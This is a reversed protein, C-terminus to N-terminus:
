KALRCRTLVTQKGFGRDQHNKVTASIKVESKVSDDDNYLWDTNGSNFTVFQNDTGKFFGCIMLSDGYFSEVLRTRTIEVDVCKLKEGKEGVYESKKPDHTEIKEGMKKALRYGFMGIFQCEKPAHGAHLMVAFDYDFSNDLTAISEEPFETKCDNLYSKALDITEQDIKAIEEEAWRKSEGVGNLASFYLNSVVSVTAVGNGWDEVKRSNYTWKNGKLIHATLVALIEIDAGLYVRPGNGGEFPDDGDIVQVPEFMRAIVNSFDAAFIANAISIGLYDKVCQRGVVKREGKKNELVIVKKRNRHTGCHDCWTMDWQKYDEIGDVKGNIINWDSDAMREISALVKWGGKIKIEQYEITVDRVMVKYDRTLVTGYVAAFAIEIKDRTEPVRYTHLYPEGVTMKVPKGGYKASKKDLKKVLKRLNDLTRNEANIQFEYTLVDTM